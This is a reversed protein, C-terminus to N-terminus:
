WDFSMEVAQKNPDYIVIKVTPELLAAWDM